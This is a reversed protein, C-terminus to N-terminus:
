TLGNVTHYSHNTDHLVGLPQRNKVVSRKRRLEQEELTALKDYFDAKRKDHNRLSREVKIVCKRSKILEERAKNSLQLKNQVSQSENRGKQQPLRTKIQPLHDHSIRIVGKSEDAVSDANTPEQNEPNRRITRPIFTHDM